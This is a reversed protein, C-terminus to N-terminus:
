ADEIAIDDFWGSVNLGGIADARDYSVLVKIVHRGALSSLDFQVSNWQNARLWRAEGQAQASAGYGYQDKVSPSLSMLTAGTGAADDAVVLDVASYTSSYSYHPAGDYTPFTKYSLRSQAGIVVDLGEYVIADSRAPGDVKVQGSWGLARLGTFGVGGKNAFGSGPTSNANVTLAAGDPADPDTAKLLDWDALSATEVGATPTCGPHANTWRNGGCLLTIYLRYFSYAGTADLTFEKKQGFDTFTNGTVTDLTTWPGAASNAGQVEFDFPERESSDNATTITYKVAEQPSSLEYVLWWPAAQTRDGSLWKTSPIGDAAKAAGEAASMESSASVTAVWPLLSDAGFQSAGLINVPTGYAQTPLAVAPDGAEFGSRFTGGPAAQAAPIASVLASLALGLAAVAAVARRDTNM